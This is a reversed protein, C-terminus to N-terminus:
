LQPNDKRKGKREKVIENAYTNGVHIYFIYIYINSCTTKQTCPGRKQMIYKIAAIDRSMRAIM